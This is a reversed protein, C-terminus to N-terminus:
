DNIVASDGRPRRMREFVHGVLPITYWRAITWIEYHAGKPDHPM